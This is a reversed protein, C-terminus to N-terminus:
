IIKAIWFKRIIRSVGFDFSGVKNTGSGADPQLVFIQDLDYKGRIIYFIKM